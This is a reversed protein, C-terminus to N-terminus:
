GCFPLYRRRAYEALLVAEAKDHRFQAPLSGLLAIVAEKAIRKKDAPSSGKPAQVGMKKKWFAPTPCHLRPIGLIQCVARCVGQSDGLSLSATKSLLPLTVIRELAVGLLDEQYPYLQDLLAKGDIHRCVISSVSIGEQSVLSLPLNACTVLSGDKAIVAYAGSLGPDIGLFM